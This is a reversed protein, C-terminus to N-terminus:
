HCGVHPSLQLALGHAPTFAICATLDTESTFSVTSAKAELTGDCVKGHAKSFIGARRSIPAWSTTALPATRRGRKELKELVPGLPAPLYNKQMSWRIPCVAKTRKGSDRLYTGSGREM